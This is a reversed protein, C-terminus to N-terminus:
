PAIPSPPRPSSVDSVTTWRQKFADLSPPEDFTVTEGEALVYSRYRGAAAMVVKGSDTCEPSCLWAALVAVYDPDWESLFDVRATTQGLRSAALPAIVNATIGYKRGEQALTFTLGVLGMKATSYNAQGFNGFLGSHSTTMVVRGFAQQRFHPWAAKTPYYSGDVHVRLVDHWEDDTMNHFARDRLIGANNVLGDIRGFADLASEVVSAGGEASDVRAYNAVATGGAREIEAVVEDAPQVSAAEEGGDPATAADNVVVLAGHRALMIAHARGVGRGAGTVVIARGDLGHSM